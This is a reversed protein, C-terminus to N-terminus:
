QLEKQLERIWAQLKQHAAREQLWHCAYDLTSNLMAMEEPTEIVIRLPKFWEDHLEVRM